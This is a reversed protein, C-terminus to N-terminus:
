CFTGSKVTTTTPPPTTTWPHKPHRLYNCPAICNATAAPLSQGSGPTQGDMGDWFKSETDFWGFSTDSMLAIRTSIERRKDVKREYRPPGYAPENWIGAFDVHVMGKVPGTIIAGEAGAMFGGLHWDGPRNDNAIWKINIGDARMGYPVDEWQM